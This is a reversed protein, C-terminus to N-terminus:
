YAVKKKIDAKFNKFNNMEDANQKFVSDYKKLVDPVTEGRKRVSLVDFIQKWNLKIHKMWNRELLSVKSGNAVVLPLKMKQNNFKVSVEIEGLVPMRNNSYSNLTYQSNKLTLHSFCQEYVELPIVSVTAGSTDVTFELPMDNAQLTVKLEDPNQPGRVAYL